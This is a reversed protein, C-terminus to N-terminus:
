TEEHDERTERSAEESQEIQDQEADNKDLRQLERHSDIRHYRTLPICSDEVANHHPETWHWHLLGHHLM